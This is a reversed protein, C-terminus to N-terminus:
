RPRGPKWGFEQAGPGLLGPAPPAAPARAEGRRWWARVGLQDKLAEVLAGVGEPDIRVRTGIGAGVAIGLRIGVVGDLLVGGIAESGWPVRRCRGGRVARRGQEREWAQGREVLGDAVVM